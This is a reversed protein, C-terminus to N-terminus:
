SFYRVLLWSYRRKKADLSLFKTSSQIINEFAHEPPTPNLNMLPRNL